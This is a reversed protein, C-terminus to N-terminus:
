RWRFALGSAVSVSNQLNSAANPLQTRLWGVQIPRLILHPSLRFNLGGQFRLAFSDGSSVVGGDAPFVSSFGHAEGLLAEGFVEVKGRRWTYRPGLTVTVFSLPVSQGTNGTHTGSVEATVGLGHSIASNVQIDGGQMWFHNAGTSLGSLNADFLLAVELKPQGRDQAGAIEAVSLLALVAIM